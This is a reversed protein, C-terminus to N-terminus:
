VPQGSPQAPEQAGNEDVLLVVEEECGEQSIRKCKRDRGRATLLM